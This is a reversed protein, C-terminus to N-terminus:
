AAFAFVELRCSATDATAYLTPEQETNNYLRFLALEGALLQVTRAGATAGLFIYNTTDLNKLLIYGPEVDAPIAVQEESTGIVQHFHAYSSGTMAITDILLGTNLPLEEASDPSYILQAKVTLSDAM